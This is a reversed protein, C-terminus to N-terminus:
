RGQPDPLASAQRSIERHARVYAKTDERWQMRKPQAIFPTAIRRFMVRFWAGIKISRAARFGARAGHHIFFFQVLDRWLHTAHVKGVANRGSRITGGLHHIVQVDSMIGIKWGKKQARWCLDLDQCYFHYEGSLPGADNWVQRRLAMAAGPVWDVNYETTGSVPKLRRWISVRGLVKPIGSAQGFLWLYSPFGGGSWQGEGDPFSLAAGSIGLRADRDFHSIVLEVTNPSVVTDSNLLLILDGNSVSVGLNVAGTFGAREAVRVQKVEPFSKSLAELTRDSSGDDVVIIEAHIGSQEYLSGVAALTMDRTNRTPIVVSVRPKM